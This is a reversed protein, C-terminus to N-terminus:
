DLWKNLWKIKVKKLLDIKKIKVMCFASNSIEHLIGTRLPGYLKAHLLTRRLSLKIGIKGSTVLFDFEVHIKKSKLLM